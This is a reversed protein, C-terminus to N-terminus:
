MMVECSTLNTNAVSAAEVRHMARLDGELGILVLAQALFRAPTADAQRLYETLQDVCAETPGLGRSALAGIRESANRADGRAGALANASVV